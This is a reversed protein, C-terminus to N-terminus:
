LLAMPWTDGTSCRVGRIHPLGCKMTDGADHFGDSLNLYGTNGPDLVSKNAVSFSAFLNVGVNNAMFKLPM